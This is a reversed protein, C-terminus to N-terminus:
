FAFKLGLTVQRPNQYALPKKFHPNRALHEAEAQTRSDFPTQQFFCTESGRCTGLINGDYPLNGVRTVTDEDFLNLVNVSAELSYEGIKFPHTLLLDTQTLDPTRGLNGRGYAYYEANASAFVYAESIPTGDGYYQNLGLNTGWPLRYLAQVKVQNPRDTNLPGVEPTGDQNFVMHRLDFFRNVNPSSRGFEDSSALGSYNGELKSYTYDVNLSWNDAFRRKFTLSFAEYDRVAKPLAPQGSVAASYSGRGPNGITYTEAFGGSPLQTRVGIDDVAWVIGKNVYRASLVIKDTVQHDVGVQYEETEFPKLDPDVGERPDTPERLDIDGLYPGINSCPNQNHENNITQCQWAQWNPNTILYVSDIWRDAGSSGRPMELKTIDYYTGFSGYVKWRQDSKVDWAFGLRPALKDAFDFEIMNDTFTKDYSPVKEQETRVGLNITLNPRIAWADQLFLGLNKTQAGGETRFRRAQVTGYAGAAAVGADDIFGWQDGLGWRARILAAGNEGTSVANEVKEYQVGGKLSHNGAASLFFSADLSAAERKYQDIDTGTFSAVPLNSFLPPQSPSGGGNPTFLYRLGTAIGSTESNQDFYAVRGSLYFNSSAIFDAYASYSDATFDTANDLDAAAPTSGDQAPLADEVKSPSLNAAVKYLFKSSVNGKLNGSFFQQTTKTSSTLSSGLPTRETDVIQPQYAVFFWARDRAIPGGLGFGPEIQDFSDKEFTCYGGVAEGGCLAAADRRPTPRADGQLSDNAFYAGVWGQFDNSGSKTIANIVGGTSGGYEAQYGASKVQVEEVFDTVMMQASMGTRANTTDAGDIVYRNEAGSSGDISIGALFPENKSGGVLPVVSTFDRGKPILSIQERSISTATASQTVDIQAGEGTVIITEEFSGVELTLNITLLQGLQLSIGKAEAPKYGELSAKISYVGSPLRPFRYAGNAGTNAVVTGISPSTAEVTVGPLVAGEVDKVVGEIGGTQEQAVLPTWVLVAAALLFILKRRM